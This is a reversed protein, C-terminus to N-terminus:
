SHAEPYAFGVRPVGTITCVTASYAHRPGPGHCKEDMNYMNEPLIDYEKIKDGIVFFYHEFSTVSSAQPRELNLSNLFRSDLEDSQREVFRSCWKNNQLSYFGALSWCVLCSATLFPLCCGGM